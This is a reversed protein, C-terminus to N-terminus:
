AAEALRWVSLKARIQRVAGEVERKSLELMRAIDTQRHESYMLLMVKREKETLTDPLDPLEDEVECFAQEATESLFRAEFWDDGTGDQDGSFDEIYLEGRRRKKVIDKVQDQVCMNVYQDRRPFGRVTRIAHGKVKDPDFARLARLVKIRIIQEIDEQSEEVPRRDKMFPHKGTVILRATQIVLGEYHPMAAAIDRENVGYRNAHAPRAAPLDLHGRAQGM